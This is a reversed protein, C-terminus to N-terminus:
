KKSGRLNIDQYSIKKFYIISKANYQSQIYAQINHYPLLVAISWIICWFNLYYIRNKSLDNNSHIEFTPIHSRKYYLVM